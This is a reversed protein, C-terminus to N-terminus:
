GGARDGRRRRRHRGRGRCRGRKRRRPHRRQAAHLVEQLHARLRPARPQPRAGRLVGGGDAAHKHPELRGRVRRASRALAPPAVIVVEAQASARGGDGDAVRVDVKEAGGVVHSLAQKQEVVGDELRGAAAVEEVKRHLARAVGRRRPAHTHTHPPPPHPTPLRPHVVEVARLCTPKSGTKVKYGGEEVVQSGGERLVSHVSGVCVGTGVGDEAALLVDDGEAVSDLPATTLADGAPVGSGVTVGATVGAPVDAGVTVTVDM